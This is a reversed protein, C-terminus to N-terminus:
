SAATGRSNVHTLGPRRFRHEHEQLGERPAPMSAMPLLHTQSSRRPQRTAEPKPLTTTLTMRNVPHGAVAGQIVSSSSPTLMTRKAPTIFM